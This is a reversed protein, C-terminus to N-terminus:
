AARGIFQEASAVLYRKARWATKKELHNRARKAGYWEDNRFFRCVLTELRMLLYDIERQAIEDLAAVLPGACCALILLSQWGAVTAGSVTCIKIVAFTRVVAISQRVM